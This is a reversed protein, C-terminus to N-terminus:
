LEGSKLVSRLLKANFQHACCWKMCDAVSMLPPVAYLKRELTFPLRSVEPREIFAAGVIADKTTGDSSTEIFLDKGGTLIVLCHLAEKYHDDVRLDPISITFLRRALVSFGLDLTVDLRPVDVVLNVRALYHNIMDKCPYGM